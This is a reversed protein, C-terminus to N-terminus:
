SRPQGEGPDAGDVEPHGARLLGAEGDSPRPDGGGEPEQLAQVGENGGSEQGALRGEPAPERVRRGRTGQEHQRGGLQITYRDRQKQINVAHGQTVDYRGLMENFWSDKKSEDQEWGNAVIYVLEAAVMTDYAAKNFVEKRKSKFTYCGCAGNNDPDVLAWCTGGFDGEAEEDHDKRSHECNACEDFPHKVIICKGLLELCLPCTVDKEATSTRTDPGNVPADCKIGRDWYHLVNPSRYASV